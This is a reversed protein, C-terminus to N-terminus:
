LGPILGIVAAMGDSIWGCVTTLPFSLVGTWLLALMVLMIIREYKMLAFYYKDPLFLFLLRSGDLPPIPILNFIALYLNLTHLYLFFMTTFLLVNMGFSGSGQLTAGSFANAYVKFFIQYFLMAVFSLLLNALPGAVATIAMGKRPKKFYRSNVPVPKAWGFGFLLMCITGIPDLHKRPDLTLRGLNRATPDGLKYAAFGHACEHFTLAILVCIIILLM